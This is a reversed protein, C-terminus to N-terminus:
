AVFDKGEDEEGKMALDSEADKSCEMFNCLVIYLNFGTEIIFSGLEVSEPDEEDVEIEFHLFIDPNYKKM